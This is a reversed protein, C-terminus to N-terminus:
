PMHSDTSSLSPWQKFLLFCLQWNTPTAMYSLLLLIVKHKCWRAKQWEFLLVKTSFQLEYFMFMPLKTSICYSTSCLKFIIRRLARTPYKDSINLLTTNLHSLFSNYIINYISVSAWFGDWISKWLRHWLLNLDALVRLKYYFLLKMIIECDVM